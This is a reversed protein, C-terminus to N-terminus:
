YIRVEETEKACRTRGGAHTLLKITPIEAQKWFASEGVLFFLFAACLSKHTEPRNHRLACIPGAAFHNRITHFQLCSQCLVFPVAEGGKWWGWDAANAWTTLITTYHLDSMPFLNFAQYMVSRNSLFAFRDWSVSISSLLFMGYCFHQLSQQLFTIARLRAM